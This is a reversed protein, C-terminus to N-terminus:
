WFNRRKLSYEQAPLNFCFWGFGIVKRSAINTIKFFLNETIFHPIIKMAPQLLITFYTILIQLVTNRCEERLKDTVAM